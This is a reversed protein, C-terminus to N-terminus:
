QAKIYRQTYASGNPFDERFITLSDSTLQTVDFSRAIGTGQDLVVPCGQSQDLMVWSGNLPVNDSLVNYTADANLQFYGIPYSYSSGLISGNTINDTRIDINNWKQELQALTPCTYAKYHQTYAINGAKRRIILSDNTAMVIEFTRQLNTTTDLTLECNTANAVWKGNLPVNNSLVRYTGDTNLEFFGVPKIITSSAVESGDSNYNDERTYTNLWKKTIFSQYQCSYSRFHETIVSNGVKKKLTLSDATLKVVDFTVGLAGGSTLALNCSADFSWNGTVSLGDSVVTYSNGSKFQIFGAPHDYSTKQLVGASNYDDIQTSVDAWKGIILGDTAHACKPTNDPEPQIKQCSSATFAFTIASFIYLLLKKM